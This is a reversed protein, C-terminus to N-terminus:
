APHRGWGGVGRGGLGGSKRHPRRGVFVRHWESLTLRRLPKRVMIGANSVVADLRRFRHITAEVADFATKEDRVDGEIGSVAREHAFARHLGSDALDVIGVQWGSSVLHRVIARGIGRAGGTILAVPKATSM